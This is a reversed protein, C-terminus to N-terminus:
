KSPSTIPTKWIISDSSFGSCELTTCKELDRIWSNLISDGLPLMPRTALITGLPPESLVSFFRGAICSVQTQDRPQFSGRSFPIAVGVGTNKGPSNGCASSGPPSRRERNTIGGDCPHYPQGKITVCGRIVDGCVTGMLFSVLHTFSLTQKM